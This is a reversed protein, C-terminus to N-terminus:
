KIVKNFETEFAIAKDKMSVERGLNHCKKALAIVGETKDYWKEKAESWVWSGKEAEDPLKSKYSADGILLRIKPGFTYLLRYCSSPQLEVFSHTELIFKNIKFKEGLVSYKKRLIRITFQGYGACLDETTKTQDGWVKNDIGDLMKDVLWLPTFVEGHMDSKGKDTPVQQNTNRNLPYQALDINLGTSLKFREELREIVNLVTPM